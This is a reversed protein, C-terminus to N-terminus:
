LREWCYMIKVELALWKQRVTLERVKEATFPEVDQIPTGQLGIDHKSNDGPISVLAWSITLTTINARTTDDLTVIFGNGTFYSVVNRISHDKKSEINVSFETEGKGGKVTNLIGRQCFAIIYTNDDIFSYGKQVNKNDELKM